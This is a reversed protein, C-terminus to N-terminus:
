IIVIGTSGEYLGGRMVVARRGLMRGLELIEKTQDRGTNIAGQDYRL